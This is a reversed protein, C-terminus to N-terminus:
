MNTEDKDCNVAFIEAFTVYNYINCYPQNMNEDYEYINLGKERRFSGKWFTSEVELLRDPHPFSYILNTLISEISYKCGENTNKVYSYIQM